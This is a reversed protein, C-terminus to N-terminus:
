IVRRSKSERALSKGASSIREQRKFPAKELKVVGFAAGTVFVALIAMATTVSAKTLILATLGTFVCLMLIVGVSRSDGLGWNSLRHAFHDRGPANAPSLGRRLRSVVVLTTDFLPVALVFVPVMWANFPTLCPFQLMIALAAVQFGILLSGSDGMFIKAPWRNWWLFGINAGMLCLALIVISHQGEQLALIFYFLAVVTAVGACLGDMHDLIAFSATVSVTWLITLLVSLCYGLDPAAALTRSLPWYMIRVNGAVLFLSALPLLVFLKLRAHIGFRDDFLGVVFMFTSGALFFLLEIKHEWAFIILLGLVFAIYIAAGGLLPVPYAHHKRAEPRDILNFHVAIGKAVPTLILTALFAVTFVLISTWEKTLKSEM